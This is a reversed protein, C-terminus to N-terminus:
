DSAKSPAVGEIADLVVGATLIEPLFAPKEAGPEYLVYLPVSNRGYGELARAITEDRKTWDAKLAVIGKREFAEVVDADALATQENVQCSLCWQATFDIFVPEGAQRLEALRDPSFEEWQIGDPDDAISGAHSFAGVAGFGFVLAVLLIAGAIASSVVRTRRKRGLSAWKGYIWAAVGAALLALLAVAIANPGAQAGLTWLLWVVTALLLFGMAQKLTDMWAGPKPMYALWRPFISLLLYPFAMGLGLSTFVAMSVWAPQAMAFGLASGMFPATCPTAVVTATAGGLFSSGVGSGRAGADASTLSSGVEFVGLMSLGFLFLFVSLAFLFEPSQLQFGWGLQEGGARLLLLAGALAWFSIVVGATFAGGHAAIKRREEGAQKVFGMIKLSIVPLVCPMLNLIIGGVFAFAIAVWVGTEAVDSAAGPEDLKAFESASAEVPAVIELARKDGDASELVLVGALTDPDDYKMPDYPVDLRYGDRSKSFPQEAANRFVGEQEPFFVAEVIEGEFSAPPFLFFVALTDQDFARVRWGHETEPRADDARAFEDRREEDIAPTTEAVPLTLALTAEGPVCEEKCVLWDAEVTLEVTEADLKDPPRIEVIYLVEGEYGYNALGGVIIKEPTEWITEGIEFGDPTRWEFTPPLGADGANKWYVHWRDDTTIRVAARFPEGPQVSKVEAVLEAEVHGVREPQARSAAGLSLAILTILFVRMGEILM